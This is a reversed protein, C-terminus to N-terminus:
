TFIRRGGRAGIEDVSSTEVPLKMVDAFIQTWVKFKAAGGVLRISKPNKDM